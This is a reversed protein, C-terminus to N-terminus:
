QVHASQLVGKPCPSRINAHARAIDDVEDRMAHSKGNRAGHIFWTTRNRRELAIDKLFAMMPTVGIGASALVVPCDGCPILFDGSPAQATIVDGTQVLDHMAQSVLGKAERKISVRYFPDNPSASLSYNRRVKHGSPLHLEIPLNQGAKFPKLKQGDAPALYFSTVEHTEKVKKIVELQRAQQRESIWRLAIADPRDIVGEVTVNILRRTAPDAPASPEWDIEARGTIHLLGGTEFDVFLLAVRPNSLINGITNFFNNGAYDPISLHTEDEVRVFGPEGGRHSADYGNARATTNDRQGSGIFMTDAKQIRAIQANSLANTRLPAQPESMEARYWNRAHIHQPCNGYTQAVKISYGGSHTEIRGSLRNRRRTALDIGLLGVDSGAEFANALPDSPGLHTDITLSSEDPSSVFGTEGDILTVWPRGTKDAGSLVLFPLTHYFRRHQEPLFPRIFGAVKASMNGAGARTQAEIEGPHFPSQDMAM